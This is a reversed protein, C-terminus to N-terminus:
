FLTVVGIISGGSIQRVAAANLSGNKVIPTRVESGSGYSSTGSSLLTDLRAPRQRLQHYTALSLGLAIGVNRPRVPRLLFASM